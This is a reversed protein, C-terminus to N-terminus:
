VKSKIQENSPREYKEFLYREEILKFISYSKDWDSLDNVSFFEEADMNENWKYGLAIRSFGNVEMTKYNVIVISM